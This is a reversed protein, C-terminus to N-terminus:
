PMFFATEVQRKQGNGHHAAPNYHQRIANTAAFVAVLDTVKKKRKIYIVRELNSQVIAASNCARLSRQANAPCM